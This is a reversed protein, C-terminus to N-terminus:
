KRLTNTSSAQSSPFLIIDALNVHDPRSVMFYIVDAVDDGYLPKLGQYVNEAKSEDGKFRVKSFETNVLGPNVSSVKINHKLLDIRMGKTLADIAFKSACYGNGNPYVEKGAISGINIIHGKQRPVMWSVIKKSIAYVGKVNVDMMLDFDSLDAEDFPAMGHANGANNVLIDIKRLDDPLSNLAMNIEDRSQIDFSLTKVNVKLSLEDKIKELREKRRGCIILDINNKAFIKATALGIGSTAGTIFALQKM